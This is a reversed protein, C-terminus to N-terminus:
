AAGNSVTWGYLRYEDGENRVSWKTSVGPPLRDPHDTCYSYCGTRIREASAKGEETLPFPGFVAAEGKPLSLVHDVMPKYLPVRGPVGGRDPAPATQSRAILDTVQAHTTAPASPKV